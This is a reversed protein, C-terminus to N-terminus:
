GMALLDAALAHLSTATTTPNMQYRESGGYVVFCNTPGLDARATRFGREL